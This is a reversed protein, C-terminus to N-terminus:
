PTVRFGPAERLRRGLARATFRAAGAYDGSRALAAARAEAEGLRAQAPSGREPLPAACASILAVLCAAFRRNL